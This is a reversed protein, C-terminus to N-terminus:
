RLAAVPSRREGATARRFTTGVEPNEQEVRPATPPLLDGRERAISTVRVPVVTRM